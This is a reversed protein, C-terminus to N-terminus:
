LPPTRRESSAPPFAWLSHRCAVASSPAGSMASRPLVGPLWLAADRADVVVPQAARAEAPVRADVLADQVKRHGARTRIRDGQKRSRVTLPWATGEELVLALVGPPPLGEAVQFRWAGFDGRAGPGALVLPTPPLKRETGVCRVRGGTVKLLLGGSLALTGGHAVVDRGRELTAHDVRAGATDLLRALVRRSLPPELARLGVPDLGGGPLVLREWAADALGALLAEDESALRAFTALHEVTSFGAARNLAPLVDLRMRTRFFSPDANMPDRVFGVEETALFALVDERSCALLPRILSSARAHIARAGRLAAGRSLRMLLTEAQDDLTHGTAVFDLGREERLVELTAYRAARARAEMGAGPSLALRRVHCTLGLRAALGVVSTVEESAEARLGHDVTAVEVRLALAERVRATGVLLATSDAGGSVALLVSRSAVGLGAYSRALAAPLSPREPTARPM